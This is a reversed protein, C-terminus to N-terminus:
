QEQMAHESMAHAIKEAIEIMNQKDAKCVRRDYTYFGNIEDEVDSVQTYVSGCLGEKIYPLVLEEYRKTIRKMLDEESSCTGYGYHKDSFLHKKVVFSYGGFESLFVPRDKGKPKSFGFYIHVSDFDSKEQAFWGSTADYLRTADTKKALDYMRDSDFQGWGENFITYAIISPHNHLANLTELMHKEFIEKQKKGIEKGVDTRRKRGITPLLTDKWFSYDGNNVMDQMVLMGHRDCAYYFCAPEIKIHKRLMNFGMAKMGLIDREFAEEEAPTVIGDSFYGQDLVGHMFIPIGNLCVRNVGNVKKIEITRLGFYSEVVDDGAQITMNYLYPRQTDWLIPEYLSGNSLRIQSLKIYGEKAQLSTSYVEGNHLMIQVIIDQKQYVKGNDIKLHIGELDPIIKLDRIYVDPVQELWVSKWLGSTPTYWMGGRNRCQKGYPYDRDLRDTVKVVLRNDREKVMQSVDFSFPLYGGEHMGLYSENLYVEAIQDVGEFHLLTRKAADYDKITFVSEYTMSEKITGGYEALISEPPFPVRVSYGDLDWIGNLSQWHERRMQPRPYESWVEKVRKLREGAETYLAYQTIQKKM